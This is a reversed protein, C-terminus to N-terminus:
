RGDGRDRRGALYGERYGKSRDSTSHPAAPSVERQLLEATIMDDCITLEARHDENAAADEMLDLITLQTRRLDDVSMHRVILGIIRRHLKNSM